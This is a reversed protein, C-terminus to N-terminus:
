ECGCSEEEPGELGEMVTDEVSAAVPGFLTGALGEAQKSAAMKAATQASVSSITGNKQKTVMQKFISGFSGRGATVGAIEPTVFRGLIVGLGTDLGLSVLNYHCQKGTSVKLYQKAFNTSAGLVAGTALPGFYLSAEGALAGGIASGAYDQWSSVHGEILDTVGQSAVGIAAGIAVAAVDDTIFWRGSPDKYLLPSSGAYAYTSTGGVLGVPDSQIYRGCGPCYDRYGNYVLGSAAEYYQGPFRLNFTYGGTSVPGREGFPNGQYAWQWIQVGSSNSISRPAGMQDVVVFNVGPSAGQGDLTSVLMDDMWIYDRNATGYEGLIQGNEGYAFRLSVAQPFTVVESIRQGFINYGYTAVTQSNAQVVTLRSRGDYGYGFTQGSGANGTTNGNLDYSRVASGISTLWHTGTQYGYSGTALGGASAKSLRDGTQNYTYAEVLSGQGDLVGTLRYLHDYTYAETPTPVGAANGLGVVDGMVDRAFHLNFNPSALDLLRYNADYGRSVVQGNGLTYSAIPGFPLYTVNSVLTQAAGGSPTVTVSTIQGATNRAYQVVNGSPYTVQSLRGAPTYKYAITDAQTGQMQRKQMVHGLDDYCYITTVNSEVVRTLHGAPFSPNCGTVLAPEDYFYRVNLSADAFTMTLTRNLADYTGTSAVGKADTHTLVNGAADFTDSRSGADPSQLGTRNSLGDYTYTTTLSSPDTLGIIRDLADYNIGTTTNQTGVSTGNSDQVGGSLRNLADVTSKSQIGLGDISQLLNGQFDYSGSASADFVTHNLGDIAKVLQGLKNFQRKLSHVPITGGSAFVNEATRNGSADLTFQVYNGQADTIKTLRHADDYGYTTVVSDPDTVTEVAGYPTYTYVTKSENLAGTTVSAVWGRPTYTITTVIGNKDAVIHPRGAGDYSIFNSQNGLADVVKALDGHHHLSNDSLYYGYTTTDDVDTRPGKKTLVLGVIPCQTTDVADCYTMVMRRVGAPATDSTACTYNAASSVSPDMDCTALVQGRANYVWASQAVVSGSANLTQRTLPVRLNNDWTTNTTRQEPKGQAEIRKTELGFSSNTIATANGNLDTEQSVYGNSDHSQSEWPQNCENGCPGSRFDYDVFRLTGAESNYDFTVTNGLPTTLTPGDFGYSITSTDVVGAFSTSFAQASSNYGTNEFRVGKEDITGTMAHPLNGGGTLSSENYVYQLVHTDPFTISTLNSATDYGYTLVGGDPLSVTHVRKSSDYTFNLARGSPDTVTLLLGPVPAITSPTSSTSYAFTESAGSSDVVSQLLGDISYQETERYAAVFLTYGTPNGSGDDHETLTDAVDVDATWVGANKNFADGSGDPRMAIIPGPGIILLSRDFSHRWHSGM